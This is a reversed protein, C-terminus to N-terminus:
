ALVGLVLRDVAVAAVCGVVCATVWVWDRRTTKLQVLTRVPGSYGRALMADYVDDATKMSKRVVFAMRDTVWARNDHTSGATVLRSERALHIQEVTRLLTVIQKHTMALTAVIVGPVRLATLAQLLQAWRMTWLVLLSFGAAAVVRLVLTAAGVLGPETISFRGMPIVVAGPTVWATTSPIVLILALLGASLWVKRSFSAVSLRSAAALAAGVAVFLVLMWFSHVLSVTVAMLVISFLKIRPDLRQLLGPRSAHEENELVESIARGLSDATKRALSRVRPRRAHVAQAIDGEDHPGTAGAVAPRHRRALLAAAGWGVAVCLIVGIVAAFLYGVSSHSVGPATYGPLASKWVSGLSELNGPVYGVLSEIQGSSWEGWATGPALAGLPVLIILAGIGAWLWRLPKAAPRGSLLATDSKALAAVVGVTVIAEVWGFFLIHEIAMAPVAITLPYPAYLAQGAATHAIYPQLGFEIGACVASAVIGVYAAVGASVLRRANSRGEGFLLRYVYYGVFPLVVAMNLCNAGIATIGGDGFVLAQIILAVSIALVAAWPGLIIAILTGGVAHGTSGGIVPVNFMMIIFAFAAGLAMLPVQKTKLTKKVKRAAIVWIPVMAVDLVIFTQPSLYGDPIHM